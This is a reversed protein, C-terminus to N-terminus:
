SRRRRCARRRGTMAARAPPSAAAPHLWNGAGGCGWGVVAPGVVLVAGDGFGVALGVVLGVGDGFGVALGVVLGVGDGLGVAVAWGVADGDGVAVGVPVAGAVRGSGPVVQLSKGASLAQCASTEFSGTLGWLAPQSTAVPALEPRSSCGSKPGEPSGAWGQYPIGYV